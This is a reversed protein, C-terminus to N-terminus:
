GGNTHLWAAAQGRSALGLKDLINAVHRKVTHPSIDLARAILKNSDGAAIMELVERERASLPGEDPALPDGSSEAPDPAAAGGRLTQAQTSLDRLEARAADDLRGGWDAEALARLTPAGALLANGRLDDRRMRAIAAILAIAAEDLRGCRLLAHAARLQLETAHGMVDMRALRPLLTSFLAAADDWRGQAAAHRARVAIARGNDARADAIPNEKLLAAWHALVAADAGLIDNMRVGYIAVQHQWLRRRVEGTGDERALMRALRERVEDARGSVAGEILRFLVVGIEGEGSVALWKMEEEALAMEDRARAIRGGWLHSFALLVRLEARMPLPQAGIRALAGALYREILPPMGPLTTWNAAPIGEWWEFLGGETELLAVVEGYLAPMRDHEGRRFHQALDAMLAVRRAHPPQPLATLAALLREAEDNRDLPYLASALYASALAREARAATTAADDAAAAERRLAAALAAEFHRASREWEWRQFQVMGALRQLGPSLARWGEDFAEIARLLEGTAGHLLLEPAARLLEAEAAATDGARQLLGVRRLPDPESAAARQLLPAWDGPRERKLREQLADRFLDHLVLTREDADLATAFLGRREIEDLWAAARPDGSVAAAATATVEPLVSCCLLFEHLPGPLEDLVECALFEFLHRDMLAGARQASLGRTGLAALCLRLGAPWGATRELLEGAREAVGSAAALAAAEDAGFRLREQDFEALEGAVRWRALALPPMVRTSLVLTWQRPLRQILADLGQMLRQGAPGDGVRHLDDLVIVGHAADAGALANVLEDIARPRPATDTDIQAALAEPAIRWPLDAGELAAALCAFLRPLDDAEDMAVWALATGAPLRSLQAALATTKGFGAPAQLLVVRAGLLASQLAADLAPREVLAARLSRAAPGQPPQIKTAAFRLPADM